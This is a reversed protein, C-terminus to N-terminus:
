FGYVLTRVGCWPPLAPRPRALLRRPRAQEDGAEHGLVGLAVPEVRVALRVWIGVFKGVVDARLVHVEVDQRVAGPTDSFLQERM